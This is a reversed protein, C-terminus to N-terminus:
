LRWWLKCIVVGSIINDLM